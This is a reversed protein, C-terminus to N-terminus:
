PATHRVLLVQADDSGPRPRQALLHDAGDAFGSLVLREAHGLLRDLGIELDEGPVEVVGDTVVILADGWGLTGEHQEWTADPLLGLAPGTESFHRWRGSGADLAVPAPHGAVGLQFGGTELCLDLHVATAFHEDWGLRLVHRNVAPLLVDSPVEGLLGSIAGALMVSRTAAEFGKGSADVLVAQLRREDLSFVMFDGGLADGDSITIATQVDWQPGCLPPTSIALLHTALDLSLRRSDAGRRLEV